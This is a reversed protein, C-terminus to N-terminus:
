EQRDLLYDRTTPFQAELEELCKRVTRGTLECTEVGCSLEQLIPTLKVGVNMEGATM